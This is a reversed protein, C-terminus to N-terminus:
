PPTQSARSVLVLFARQGQATTEFVQEVRYGRERLLKLPERGEDWTTDRFAVRFREGELASADKLAVEKFGRPLFYAPDEPLGPVNKVVSVRFRGPEVGLAFWLHYAVLDEFAYIDAPRAEGAEARALPAALTEWACWVHTGERRALTLVGALFFWCCLLALLSRKMWVTRARSLAFAALMMYPAAAVILHRTGWVSHPLLYSTLFALAPPLFSFFFLFHLAAGDHTAAGSRATSRM